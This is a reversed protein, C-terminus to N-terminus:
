PIARPWHVLLGRAFKFRSRQIRNGPHQGNPQSALRCALVASTRNCYTSMSMQLCRTKFVVTVCTSMACWGACVPTVGIWSVPSMRALRENISHGAWDFASDGLHAVRL